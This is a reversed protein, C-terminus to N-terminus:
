YLGGLTTDVGGSVPQGSNVQTADTGDGSQAMSGGLARSAGPTQDPKFADTVTGAGSDWASLTVGPPAPFSLVPRGKLAFAMYDHWIPAAVAAGTENNGLSAPNDFGVWVVTVLDPTFGSFWADTFDQTTGTKGAIPRGLGQGATVGTGRTVVGQMMTVLQFVSQPDAIQKREDTLRPPTAQDSCDACSIGSPHWVVHGDRDQVSDILTPIVERGGADISAYAGAERLVTTQVAGLAAPLVLPMSDVEHFATATAAIPEMGLYQAVRLTVLNLSQELAIRLPTPGGFNM